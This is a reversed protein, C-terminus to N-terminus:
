SLNRRCSYSHSALYSSEHQGICDQASPYKRPNAYENLFRPSQVVESTPLTRPFVPLLASRDDFEDVVTCVDVVSKAGEVVTEEVFLPEVVPLVASDEDDLEMLVFLPEVVLLVTVDEEELMLVAVPEVVLEM